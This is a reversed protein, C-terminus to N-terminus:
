NEPVPDPDIWALTATPMPLAVFFLTLLLSSSPISQFVPTFLSLMFMAATFGTTNIFALRYVQDRQLREREDLDADPMDARANTAGILWILCIIAALWAFGALLKFMLHADDRNLFGTALPLTYLAVVLMRRVRQPRVWRPTWRVLKLNLPEPRVRTM